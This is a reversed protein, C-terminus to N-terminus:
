TEELFIVSLLNSLTKSVFVRSRCNSACSASRERKLVDKFRAKSNEKFVVFFLNRNPSSITLNYAKEM